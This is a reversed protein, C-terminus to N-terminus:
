NNCKESKVGVKEVIKKIIFILTVIIYVVVICINATKNSYSLIVGIINFSCHMIITNLLNDEKDAILGLIIGCITGYIAQRLNLHYVGFLVAQIIIVIYKNNIKAKLEKLIAGRFIIEEIIPATIGIVLVNMFVGSNVILDDMMNSYTVSVNNFQFLSIIIEVFVYMSMGFFINKIVNFISIKKLACLKKLDSGQLYLKLKICIVTVVQSVLLILLTKNLYMNTIENYSLDSFVKCLIFMSILSLAIQVVFYVILYFIINEITNIYQIGTEKENIYNKSNNKNIYYKFICIAILVLVGWFIGFKSEVYTIVTFSLLLFMLGKIMSIIMNGNVKMLEYPEKWNLKPNRYDALVFGYNLLYSIFIACVGFSLWLIYHGKIIWSCLVILVLVQLASFITASITKAIIIEKESVPQYKMFNHLYKDRSYTTTNVVNICSIAALCAIIGACLMFKNTSLYKEFIGSVNIGNQKVSILVFVMMILISLGNFLFIPTRFLVKLEKLVLSKRLSKSTIKHRTKLKSLVSNNNNNLLKIIINDINKNFLIIFLISLTVILIGFIIYTLSAKNVNYNVVFKTINDFFNYLVNGEGIMRNNLFDVSINDINFFFKVALYMVICYFIISISDKLKKWNIIMMSLLILLTLISIPVAIILIIVLLSCLLYRLTFGAFTGYVITPVLIIPIALFSEMIMLSIMKCIILKYSKIPMIMFMKFDDTYNLSYITHLSGFVIVLLSGTIYSNYLIVSEDNRDIATYLSIYNMIGYIIMIVLLLGGIGIIKSITQKKDKKLNYKIPYTENLIVKLLNFIM